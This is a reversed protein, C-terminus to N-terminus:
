DELNTQIRASAGSHCVSQDSDLNVTFGTAGVLYGRDLDRKVANAQRPFVGLRTLVVRMKDAYIQRSYRQEYLKQANRTKKRAQMNPYQTAALLGESLGKPTPAVLFAVDDNLVQTHSYIDTAVLPINRSIQEYIKLPTNTGSIRPSVQVAALSVYQKAVAPSVRGTFHARDGVGCQKALESYDSVQAPTGGVILLFLDRDRDMAQRFGRILLDIGQYAELTGAYVVLRKGAWRDRHRSPQSSRDGIPASLTPASLSGVSPRTLRVGEFISNEILMVLSKPNALRQAYNDLSPCITITVEAAQLCRRELWAFLGILWKSTTFKFNSLQEPLSSHMDYVLRFRFLPKILWCFFVAEEHAHVFQYRRRCLLAITWFFMFIDLFLKLGSPGIKVPGLFKFRPIRIINVGPIDVDEGEGYTLLDVQVGLEATVLTRYYVSLPTGRCTFFPQPAIALARM